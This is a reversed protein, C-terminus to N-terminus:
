SILNQALIGDSHACSSDVVDYNRRLSATSEDSLRLLKISSEDDQSTMHIYFKSEAAVYCLVFRRRRLKMTSEDFNRRLSMSIRRVRPSACKKVLLSHDCCHLKSSYISYAMTNSEGQLPSLLSVEVLSRIDRTM